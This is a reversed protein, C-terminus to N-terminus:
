KKLLIKNGKVIVTKHPHRFRMYNQGQSICSQRTNFVPKLIDGTKPKKLQFKGDNRKVVVFPM